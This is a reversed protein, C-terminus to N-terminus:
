NELKELEWKTEVIHWRSEFRALEYGREPYQKQFEALDSKAIETKIKWGSNSYGDIWLEFRMVSQDAYKWVIYSM